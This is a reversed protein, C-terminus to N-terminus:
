PPQSALLPVPLGGNRMTMVKRIKSAKLFTRFRSGVIGFGYTGKIEFPDM